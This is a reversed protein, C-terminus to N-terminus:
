ALMSSIEEFKDKISRIAKFDVHELDIRKDGTEMHILVEFLKIDLGNIDAIRIHDLKKNGPLYFNIEDKDWEIFYKRSRLNYLGVVVLSIGQIIFLFNTWELAGDEPGTIMSKILLALAVCALLVGMIILVYALGRNAEVVYHREMICYVFTSDQKFFKQAKEKRDM